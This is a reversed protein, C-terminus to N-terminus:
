WAVLFGESSKRGHRRPVIADIKVDVVHMNEIFVSPLPLPDNELQNSTISQVKERSICFGGKRTAPAGAVRFLGHKVELGVKTVRRGHFRM